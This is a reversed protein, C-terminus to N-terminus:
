QRTKYNRVLDELVAHADEWRSLRPYGEEKANHPASFLVGQGAFREFHRSNDDILFDAHIISKDGCFVFNMPNLFSFHESLWRYKFDLSRPFEMAATTVFIEYDESLQRIAEQSGEVVELDGFFHGQHMHEQLRTYDAEDLLAGMKFGTMDADRWEKSLNEKVWFRMASGADAIVEDMDVAIRIKTM